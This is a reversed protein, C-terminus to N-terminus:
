LEVVMGVRPQLQAADQAVVGAVIGGGVLVAAIVTWFIPSEWLEEGDLAELEVTLRHREGDTLTFAERWPVYGPRVVSVAHDGPDTELEIPESREEVVQGDLELRADTADDLGLVLIQAVRGAEEHMRGEAMERTEPDLSEIALLQRFLDRADRHRGMSRLTTATNFLAAPIGSLRYSREFASVADAWRGEEVLRGGELYLDRAENMAEESPEGEPPEVRYQAVAITPLSLILALAVIGLRM